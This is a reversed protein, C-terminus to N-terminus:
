KPMFPHGGDRPNGLLLGGAASLERRQGVFHQCMTEMDRLSRDLSSRYTYIASGGVADYLSRVITRSEQFANLRSLWVDSRERDTLPEDRLIKRWQTDLASYVYSRAAGLRMQAEGIATRIRDLERYPRGSPFEVKGAMIQLVDDITRRAVGLPVAAMKRLFTDPRAWLAGERKPQTLDLTHEFPVFLSDARPAYDNSASGRLGTTFWVDDIRWEARKAIVVRSQRRGDRLLPEGNQYVICGAAINDAHTSGSLFRWQGSIRYGGAVIEARGAPQAWGAQVMDLRPWLARAASDEIFGSYFGSDCGIMLCWGVSADASSVQEIIDIQELTPLEPGGWIRPMLMRFAGADKLLQVVDAPVARQKEIEDSRSRIHPVLSVVNEFINSFCDPQRFRFGTAPQGPVPWAAHAADHEDLTAVSGERQILHLSM